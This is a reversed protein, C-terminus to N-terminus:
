RLPSPSCAPSSMAESSSTLQYTRNEPNRLVGQHIIPEGRRMAEFTEQYAELSTVAELGTAISFVSEITALQGVVAAEFQRGKGLIFTQFDTRPDPVPDQEYGQECGYLHLWDLLPGQPM